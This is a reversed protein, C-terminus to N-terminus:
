RSSTFAIPLSQNLAGPVLHSAKVLVIKEEESIDEAELMKLASRFCPLRQGTM